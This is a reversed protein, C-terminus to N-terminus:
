RAARIPVAAPKAADAGETLVRVHRAVVTRSVTEPISREEATLVGRRYLTEFLIQNNRAVLSVRAYAGALERLESGLGTPQSESDGLSAIALELGRLSQRIQNVGAHGNRGLKALQGHDVEPISMNDTLSLLKDTEQLKLVEGSPLDTSGILGSIRVVHRDCVEALDATELAMGHAIGRASSDEANRVYCRERSGNILYALSLLAAGGLMGLLVQFRDIERAADSGLFTAFVAGPAPWKAAFWLTTAALLFIACYVVAAELRSRTNLM